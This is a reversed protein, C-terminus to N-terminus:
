GGFFDGLAEVFGAFGEFSFCFLGREFARKSGAEGQYALASEDLVSYLM